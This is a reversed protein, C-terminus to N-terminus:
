AAQPGGTAVDVAPLTSMVRSPRSPSSRRPAKARSPTSGFEGGHLDVLGKVIPLGLGSGQEASKIALSGQGFSSLVIPIEEEPIGPGNDKVSVYQGGASPGASRSPSRAAAPRSSSPTPSCTSCSRGSRASTPGCGRCARARDRGPHTQSKAKVRLNLLPPLGRRYPRAQGGGREARLPRGRHAVPRPDRQHPQAPAPRQRPHRRLLRPLDARRAAGFVENKMVESFGLIANLPTRLEHSMTALFRSKALNAEEARRRAEDSNSKAQELEAFLADKEARAHLNALASSHLRDALFVLFAQASVAMLALIIADLDRQASAFAIAWASLPALGAYVAAPITASLMATIAAVILLIFLLFSQSTSAPVQALGHVVLVWSTGQVIEAAVFRRRWAKLPVEDPNQRLFRRSLALAAAM